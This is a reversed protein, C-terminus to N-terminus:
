HRKRRRSTAPQACSASDRMDAPLKAIAEKCTQGPRPFVDTDSGVLVRTRPMKAPKAPPKEGGGCGALAAVALLVVARQM